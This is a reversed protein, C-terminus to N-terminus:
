RIQAAAAFEAASMEKVTGDRLLVAGGDTPTKREYALVGGSQPPAAALGVGWVVLYDGSQIRPLANPLSDIYSNLEEVRQPPPTSSYELYKYVDVLEKLGEATSAVIPTNNRQGCGGVIAFVAVLATISHASRLM